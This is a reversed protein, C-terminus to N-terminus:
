DTVRICWDVVCSKKYFFDGNCGFTDGGAICEGAISYNVHTIQLTASHKWPLDLHHGRSCIQSPTFETSGAACLFKGASGVMINAGIGLQERM